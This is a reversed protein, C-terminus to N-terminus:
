KTKQDKQRLELGTGLDLYWLGDIRQFHVRDNDKKGNVTWAASSKDDNTKFDSFVSNAWMKVATVEQIKRKESKLMKMLDQFLAIHNTAEKLKEMSWPSTVEVGYKVVIEGVAKPDFGGEGIDSELLGANLIWQSNPAM